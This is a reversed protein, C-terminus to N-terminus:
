YDLGAIGYVPQDPTGQADYDAVNQSDLERVEQPTIGANTPSISTSGGSSPGNFTKTTGGNSSSVFGGLLGGLGAGVNAWTSTSTSKTGGIGLLPPTSPRTFFYVAAVGVGALILVTGTKM